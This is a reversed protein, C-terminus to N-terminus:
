SAGGRQQLRRHDLRASRGEFFFFLKHLLPSINRRPLLRGSRGALSTENYINKTKNKTKDGELSRSM